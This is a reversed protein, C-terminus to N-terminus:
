VGGGTLKITGPGQMLVGITLKQARGQQDATCHLCEQWTCHASLAPACRDFMFDNPKSDVVLRMTDTSTAQAVANGTSPRIRCFVRINGRLEVLENHLGRRDKESQLLNRDMVAVKEVLSSVMQASDGLGM